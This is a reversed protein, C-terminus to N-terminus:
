IDIFLNVYFSRYYEEGGNENFTQCKLILKKDSLWEAVTPGWTNPFYSGIPIIESGNVEFLQFGNPSYGAEIDTNISIMYKGSPSFFPRGIIDIVEGSSEDILKYGNGEGWQVRISYLGQKEFYYEFSQAVEEYDPNLKPDFWSGDKLKVYLEQENRKVRDGFEKMLHNELALARQHWNDYLQSISDTISKPIPYDANTTTESLALILTMGNKLKFSTDTASYYEEKPYINQSNKSHTSDSQSSESYTTNIQNNHGLKNLESDNASPYKCATFLSLVAIIYKFKM